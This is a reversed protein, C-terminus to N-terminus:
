ALGRQPKLGPRASPPRLEASLTALSRRALREGEASIKYYKRAPRGERTPDIDDTERILWGARELRALIPYLSGSAMNTRQMLDFGYRRAQPDELFPRLVKAVAPTIQVSPEM